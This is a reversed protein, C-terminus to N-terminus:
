NNLTGKMVALSEVQKRQAGSDEIPKGLSIKGSSSPFAQKRHVPKQYGTTWVLVKKEKLSKGGHWLMCPLQKGALSKCAEQPFSDKCSGANELTPTNATGPSCCFLQFQSEATIMQSLSLTLVFPLSLFLGLAHNGYKNGRQGTSQTCIHSQILHQALNVRLTFCLYSFVKHGKSSQNITHVFSFSTNTLPDSPWAQNQEGM